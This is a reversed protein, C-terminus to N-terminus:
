KPRRKMEAVTAAVIARDRESLRAIDLALTLASTSESEERDETLALVLAELVDGEVAEALRRVQEVTLTGARKKGSEM